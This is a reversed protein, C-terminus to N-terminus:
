RQNTVQSNKIPYQGIFLLIHCHYRATELIAGFNYPVLLSVVQEQNHSPSGQMEELLVNSNFWKWKIKSSKPVSGEKM